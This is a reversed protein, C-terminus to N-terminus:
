EGALWKESYRQGCECAVYAHVVDGEAYLGEVDENQAEAFAFVLRAEHGDGTGGSDPCTGGTLDRDVAGETGMAEQAFAMPDIGTASQFARRGAEGDVVLVVGEATREGQEALADIGSVAAEHLFFAVDDPREGALFQERDSPSMAPGLPAPFL